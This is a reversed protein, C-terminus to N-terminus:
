SEPSKVKKLFMVAVMFVAFIGFGIPIETKNGAIKDNVCATSLYDTSDARIGAVRRVSSFSFGTQITLQVVQGPKVQKRFLSDSFCGSWDAPIKFDGGNEQLLVDYSVQNRTIGKQVQKLHGTIVRSNKATIPPILLVWVSIILGFGLLIIIIFNKGSLTKMYWTHKTFLHPAFICIKHCCWPLRKQGNITLLRTYGM